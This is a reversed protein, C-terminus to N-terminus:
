LSVEISNTNAKVAPKLGTIKKTKETDPNGIKITYKGDDFVKPAFTSGNARITYLTENNKEDIIQVVADTM